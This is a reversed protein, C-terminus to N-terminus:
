IAERRITANDSFVAYKALVQSSEYGDIKGLAQIATRVVGVDRSRGLILDIAAVSAPDTLDRLENLANVRAARNGRLQREIRSLRAQWHNLSDDIRHAEAEIRDRQEKAMWRGLIRVFGARKLLRENQLGPDASLAARLHARERDHFGNRGCWSALRLQDEPSDGTLFREAEYRQRGESVPSTAVADDYTQWSDEVKLFGSQWWTQDLGHDRASALEARRDVHREKEAVLIDRLSVDVWDSFAFVPSTILLTILVLLAITRKM